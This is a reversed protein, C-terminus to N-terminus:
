DTDGNPEEIPQVDIVKSRLFAIDENITSIRQTPRDTLILTKDTGIAGTLSLRYAAASPDKIKDGKLYERTKEVAEKAGEFSMLSLERAEVAVREELQKSIAEAIQAYQKAYKKRWTHITREAAAVHKATEQANGGYYALIGLTEQIEANFENSAPKRNRAAEQRKTLGTQPNVAEPRRGSAEKKPPQTTPNM